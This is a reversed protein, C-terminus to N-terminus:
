KLDQYQLPAGLSEETLEDSWSRWEELLLPWAVRVVEPHMDKEADIFRAPPNGRIRRLWVRDAAYIHVLTGLVSHDATGFDRVLEEPPLASAAEVLRKSAWKSYDLHTRILDASFEMVLGITCAGVSDNLGEM